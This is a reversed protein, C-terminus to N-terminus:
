KNLMNRVNRMIIYVSLTNVTHTIFASFMTTTDDLGLLRRGTLASVFDYSQQYRRTKNNPYIM